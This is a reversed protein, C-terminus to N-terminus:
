LLDDFNAASASPVVVAKTFTSGHPTITSVTPVLYPYAPLVISAPAVFVFNYFTNKPNIINANPTLSLAWNGSSDTKVSPAQALILSEDITVPGTANLNATVTVGVQPNGATDIVKGSVTCLSM